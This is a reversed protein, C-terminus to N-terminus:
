TCDNRVSSSFSFFILPRISLFIVYSLFAHSKQKTSKAWLIDVKLLRLVQTELAKEFDSRNLNDREVRSKSTKLFTRHIDKLYKLREEKEIKTRWAEM